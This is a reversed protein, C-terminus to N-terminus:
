EGKVLKYFTAKKLGLKRWTDAATARGERWEAVAADFGPPKAAKPRGFKKGRRRAAQIGEEQREHISAREMEALAAFITCILKGQEPGATAYM